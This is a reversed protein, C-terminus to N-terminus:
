MYMRDESVQEKPEAAALRDALEAYYRAVEATFGELPATDLALGHVENLATLLRLAAEADPAQAHVPTTYVCTDLGADLGTTTVAGNVEDPFGGSM